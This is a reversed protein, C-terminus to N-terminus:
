ALQWLSNYVTKFISESNTNWQERLTKWYWKVEKKIIIWRFQFKVVVRLSRCLLYLLDLQFIIAQDRSVTSNSKFKWIKMWNACNRNPYKSSSGYQIWRIGLSKVKTFCFNIMKEEETFESSLFLEESFSGGHSIPSIKLLLKLALHGESEKRYKKVDWFLKAAKNDMKM